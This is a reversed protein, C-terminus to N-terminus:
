KEKKVNQGDVRVSDKAPDIQVGLEEVVINNVSIRGETIMRDAERRSAVGAQALFKNLRV